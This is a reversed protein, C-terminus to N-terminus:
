TIRCINERGEADEEEGRVKEEFFRGHVKRLVELLTALAGHTPSEDRRREVLSPATLGFQM